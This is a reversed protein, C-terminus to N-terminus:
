ADGDDVIDDDGILEAAREIDGALLIDTARSVVECTLASLKLVETRLEDLDDHFSKRYDNM